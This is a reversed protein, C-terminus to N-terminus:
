HGVATGARILEMVILMLIAPWEPLKGAISLILLLLSILALLLMITIVPVEMVFVHVEVLQHFIAELHFPRRTLHGRLSPSIWEIM